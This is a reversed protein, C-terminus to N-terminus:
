LPYSCLVNKHRRCVWSNLSHVSPWSPSSFCVPFKLGPMNPKVYKLEQSIPVEDSILLQSALRVAAEWQVLREPQRNHLFTSPLIFACLQKSFAHLTVLNRQKDEYRTHSVSSLLSLFTLLVFNQPLNVNWYFDPLLLLLQQKETSSNSLWWLFNQLEAATVWNQSENSVPLSAERPILPEEYVSWVVLM